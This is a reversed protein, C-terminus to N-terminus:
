ETKSATTSPQRWRISFTCHEGDDRTRRLEVLECGAARIIYGLVAEFYAPAGSTQSLSVEVENPGKDVFETKMYNNSSRFSHTLRELTRHPGGVRVAEITARGMPTREFGEMFARGMEYMRGDLDLDPFLAEAVARVCAYYTERPYFPRPKGRLDVGIKAAREYCAPTLREGLAHQFLAEVTTGFVVEEDNTAM